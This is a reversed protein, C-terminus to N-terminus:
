SSSTPKLCLRSNLADACSGRMHFHFLWMAAVEHIEKTDCVQMFASIYSILSIPNFADFMESRKQTQRREAWKAINKVVSGNYESSQFMSRYTRYNLAHEHCKNGPRIIEPSADWAKADRRFSLSKPSRSVGLSSPSRRGDGRHLQRKQCRRSRSSSIISRSLNSRKPSQSRKSSRREKKKRRNEFSERKPTNLSKETAHLSSRSPPLPVEKKDVKGM